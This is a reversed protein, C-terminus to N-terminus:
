APCSRRSSSPRSRSDCRSSRSAARARADDHRGKGHGARRGRAHRRLRRRPRLRRRHQRDDPRLARRQLLLRGDRPRARLTPAALISSLPPPPAPAIEASSARDAGPALWWAPEPVSGLAAAFVVCADGRHGLGRARELEGRRRRQRGRRRRERHGLRARRRRERAVKEARLLEVAVDLAAPEAAGVRRQLPLHALRERQALHRELLDDAEGDERAVLHDVVDVGAVELVQQQGEVAALEQLADDVAAAGRARPSLRAHRRPKRSSRSRISASVASARAAHRASPSGDAAASGAATRSAFIRAHLRRLRRAIPHGDQRLPLAPEALVVVAVAACNKPAFARM